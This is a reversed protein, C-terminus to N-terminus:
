LLRGENKSQWGIVRDNVMLLCITLGGVWPAMDGSATAVM